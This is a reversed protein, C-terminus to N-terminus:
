LAHDGRAGLAAVVAECTTVTAQRPFIKEVLVRHVEPDADVCGDEVVFLRYDADAAHRVTSLIVGSTSIGLLVLTDVDRARLLMELDTGAFASVRHKIVTPEGDRPALADHVAGDQSGPSFQGSSKITGFSKNRASIEPHGARFGVNVHAVFVGAARAAALVGAARPLVPAAREPMRAVIGNQFDMFLVASSRRDFAEVSM